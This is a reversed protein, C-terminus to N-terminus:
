HPLSPLPLLLSPGPPSLLLLIFVLLLLLLLLLPLLLFLLLLLLLLTVLLPTKLADRVVEDIPPLQIPRNKGERVVREEQWFKPNKM